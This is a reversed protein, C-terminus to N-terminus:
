GPAAATEDSRGLVVVRFDAKDSLAQLAAPRLEEPIEDLGDLIVAIKAARVLEAAAAKGGRGAFLPYTQQLREALWDGVQQTSPDWGHVTFLVPVPVRQRDKRPMQARHKLAALILLVAAGSKGSGPTGVIVLRGSGLGGYM